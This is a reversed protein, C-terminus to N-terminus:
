VYVYIYIHIYMCSPKKTGFHLLILDVAQKQLGAKWWWRYYEAAMSIQGYIGGLDKEGLKSILKGPKLEQLQAGSSFYLAWLKPMAAAKHKKAISRETGHFLPARDWLM